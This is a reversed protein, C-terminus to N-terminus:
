LYSEPTGLGEGPYGIPRILRAVAAYPGIRTGPYGKVSVVHACERGTKQRRTVILEIM